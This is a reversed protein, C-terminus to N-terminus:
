LANPEAANSFLKRAAEIVGPVDSPQAEIAPSWGAERLTTSTVPGISIAQVGQPPAALDAEEMFSLFNKVASSSLFPVADIGEALLAALKQAGDKPRVTQYAYVIDVRAGCAELEKPIVDRAAVARVLLASKGCVQKRLLEILAESVYSKPVISPQLGIRNLAEETAAGVAGIQLPALVSSPLGLHQLREAIVRVANTSTVLLWQYKQPNRLAEDLPEFSSPPLIEVMPLELVTAGLKRLGDSLTGSQEASRTVLIRRGVLPGSTM